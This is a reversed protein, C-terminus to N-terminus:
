NFGGCDCDCGGCDCDGCNCDCCSSQDDFCCCFCCCSSSHTSSPHRNQHSSYHYAESPSLCCCSCCSKNDCDCCACTCRRKKQQNEPSPQEIIPFTSRPLSPAPPLNVERVPNRNFQQKSPTIMSPQKKNVNSSTHNNRDRQARLDIYIENPQNMSSPIGDFHNDIERPQALRYKRTAMKKTSQELNYQCYKGNATM